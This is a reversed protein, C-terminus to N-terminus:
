SMLMDIPLEQFPSHALNTCFHALSHHKKQKQNAPITQTPPTTANYLTLAALVPSTATSNQTSVNTPLDIVGDSPSQILECFSREQLRPSKRTVRTTSSESDRIRTSITRKAVPPTTTSTSVGGLQTLLPGDLLGLSRLCEQNREICQERSRDYASLKRSPSKQM